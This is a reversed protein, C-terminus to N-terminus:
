SLRAIIRHTCKQLPKEVLYYSVFAALVTPLFSIILVPMYGMNMENRRMYQMTLQQFYFGYLYIGYSLDVKRGYGRFVPEQELAFSFVFYPVFLDMFLYVLPASARSIMLLVGMGVIAKQIDLRKKIQPYTFLTGAM